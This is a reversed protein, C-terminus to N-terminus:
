KTPSSMQLYRLTAALESPTDGLEVEEDYIAQYYIAPGTTSRTPGSCSADIQMRHLEKLRGERDKESKQVYADIWERSAHRAAEESTYITPEILEIEGSTNTANRRYRLVQWHSFNGDVGQRAVRPARGLEYGKKYVGMLVTGSKPDIPTRFSGDAASTYSEARGCAQRNNIGSPAHWTAVVIADPVPEGTRQDIVYRVEEQTSGHDAAAGGLAPCAGIMLLAAIMRRRYLRQITLTTGPDAEAM